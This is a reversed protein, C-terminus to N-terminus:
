DNYACNFEVGPIKEIAVIPKYDSSSGRTVGVDTETDLALTLAEEPSSAKIEDSVIQNNDYYIGVVMYDKVGM